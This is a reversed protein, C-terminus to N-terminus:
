SFLAFWGILIIALDCSMHVIWSGTFSSVRLVLKNFIFGVIFLSFLVLLMVPIPFWTQFLAIHYIAFLLSSYIYAFKVFGIKQLNLFIFGRFFFEELFSNGLIIYIGRIIYEKETLKLENSITSFNVFDHFIFYGIWIILFTLISLIISLFLSNKKEEKQSHNKFFLLYGIPFTIFLIIKCLTKMEYSFLLIREVYYLILCAFVSTILIYILNRKM